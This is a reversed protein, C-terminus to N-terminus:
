NGIKIDSVTKVTIEFQLPRGKIIDIMRFGAEDLSKLTKKMDNRGEFRAIHVNKIGTGVGDSPNDKPGFVVYYGAKNLGNNSTSKEVSGMEQTVVPAEKAQEELQDQIEDLSKDGEIINVNEANVPSTEAEVPTVIETSGTEM